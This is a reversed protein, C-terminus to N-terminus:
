ASDGLEFADGPDGDCEVDQVGVLLLAELLLEATVAEGLPRQCLNAVHDADGGALAAHALGRHGGVQRGRQRHFTM